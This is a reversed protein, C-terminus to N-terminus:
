WTKLFQRFYIKLYRIVIHKGISLPIIKDKFRFKFIYCDHNIPVKDILELQTEVAGKQVLKNQKNIRNKGSLTTSIKYLRKM